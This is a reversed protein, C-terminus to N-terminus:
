MKARVLVVVSRPAVSYSLAQLPEGRESFDGPSASATDVIRMWEQATGEQLRFELRQWYANIMVYIDDDDQSSGHLCFAL